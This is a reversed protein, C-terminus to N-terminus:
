LTRDSLQRMRMNSVTVSPLTFAWISGVVQLVALTPDLLAVDSGM